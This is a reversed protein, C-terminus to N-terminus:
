RSQRVRQRALPEFVTTQEFMSNNIRGPRYYDCDCLLAMNRARTLTIRLQETQTQHTITHLISVPDKFGSRHTCTAIKTYSIRIKIHTRAHVGAQANVSKSCDSPDSLLTAHVFPMYLHCACTSSFKWYSMCDM